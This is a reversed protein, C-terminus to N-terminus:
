RQNLLRAREHSIVITKPVKFYLIRRYDLDHVTSLNNYNGMMFLKGLGILPM